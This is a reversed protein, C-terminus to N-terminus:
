QVPLIAINVFKKLVAQPFMRILAKKGRFTDKIQHGFLEGDVRFVNRPFFPIFGNGQGSRHGHKQAAFQKAKGQDLYAPYKAAPIM